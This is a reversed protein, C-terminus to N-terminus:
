MAPKLALILEEFVTGMTKRLQPDLNEFQKGRLEHNM